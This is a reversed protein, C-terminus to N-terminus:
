RITVEFLPPECRVLRFGEPLSIEAALKYQGPGLGSIKIRTGIDPTKLSDIRSAPGAVAIQATAPNLSVRDVNPAIVVVPVDLFIRAVEQETTITVTVSEPRAMFAEGEPLIIRLRRTGPQTITSLDLTETTVSTFLRLEGPPGFLQVPEVPKVAIVLGGAPKGITPVNVTVTRSDVPNLRFTIQAPEIERVTIGSPLRLDAPNLKFQRRGIDGEPLRVRLRLASRRLKLLDRGRGELTVRALEADLESVYGGSAPRELVIPVNVNVIYSRDLVGLLWLFVALLLALAKLPLNSTFLSVIHSM